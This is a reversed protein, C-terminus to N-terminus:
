RGGEVRAAFLPTGWRRAASAVDHQGLREAQALSARWLAAAREAHGLRAECMAGILTPLPHVDDLAHLLGCLAKSESVRGGRYLALARRRLEDLDRADLHLVASLPLAGDEFAALGARDLDM